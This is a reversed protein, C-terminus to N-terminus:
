KERAATLLPNDRAAPLAPRRRAARRAHRGRAGPRRGHGRDPGRHGRQVAPARGRPGDDDRGVETVVDRLALENVADLQSTAEDLLLIRPRRLLARAIAIRQREGGSLTCGATARGGHGSGDPLRDLVGDLRTVRVM